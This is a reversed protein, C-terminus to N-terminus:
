LGEEEARDANARVLNHLAVTTSEGPALRLSWVWLLCGGQHNSEFGSESLSM